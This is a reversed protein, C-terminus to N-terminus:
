HALRSITSPQSNSQQYPFLLLRYTDLKGTVFKGFIIDMIPLATGAAIAAIVSM